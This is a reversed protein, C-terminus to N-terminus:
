KKVETEREFETSVSHHEVEVPLAHAGHVLTSETSYRGPKLKLRLLGEGRERGGKRSRKLQSERELLPLFGKIKLCNETHRLLLFTLYIHRKEMRCCLNDYFIQLPQFTILWFSAKGPKPKHIIVRYPFCILALSYWIVVTNWYKEYTKMHSWFYNIFYLALSATQM